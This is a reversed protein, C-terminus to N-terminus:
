IYEIDVIALVSLSWMLVAQRMGLAYALESSDFHSEFQSSDM